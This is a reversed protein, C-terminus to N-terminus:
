KGVDSQLARVAPSLVITDGALFAQLPSAAASRVGITSMISGDRGSGMTLQLLRFWSV